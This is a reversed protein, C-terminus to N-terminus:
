WNRWGFHPCDCAAFGEHKKAYADALICFYCVELRVRNMKFSLEDFEGGTFYANASGAFELNIHSKIKRIKYGDNKVSDRRDIIREVLTHLDDDALLTKPNQAYACVAFFISLTCFLRKM